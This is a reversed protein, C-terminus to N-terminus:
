ALKISSFTEFETPDHTCLIQINNHEDNKVSHLRRKNIEASVRDLHSIHQFLTFGPSCYPEKDMERYHYYADGAHLIWRAGQQIAVGCHGRTHGILPILVIEAPLGDMNRICHFGFWKKRDIRDHIMWDPSHSWHCKRYRERERWTPPKFAAQYETHFIHVKAQPFDPLGGAHDLDLHTIIIHKVDYPDYGLTSIQRIATQSPDQQLHLLHSMLGLRKPNAMDELGVGTDILILDNKWEILICHCTVIAPTRNLLKGGWPCMTGCNLHHMKLYKDAV